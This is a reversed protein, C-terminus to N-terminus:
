PTFGLLIITNFSLKNNANQDKIKKLDEMLQTITYAKENNNLKELIGHGLQNEKHETM